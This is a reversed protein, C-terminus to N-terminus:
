AYMLSLISVEFLSRVEVTAWLKRMVAADDYAMWRIGALHTGTPEIL